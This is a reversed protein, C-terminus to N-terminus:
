VIAIQSNTDFIHCKSADIVVEISEEEHVETTGDVTAVLTDEGSRLYVITQSGM